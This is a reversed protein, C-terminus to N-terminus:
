GDSFQTWVGSDWHEREIVKPMDLFVLLEIIKKVDDFELPNTSSLVSDHTQSTQQFKNKEVLAFTHMLDSQELPSELGAKQAPKDSRTTNAALNKQFQALPNSGFNSFQISFNGSQSVSKAQPNADKFNASADVLIDSLQEKKTAHSHASRVREIQTLKGFNLLKEKSDNGDSSCTEDLVIYPGDKFYNPDTRRPLGDAFRHLDELLGLCSFFDREYIKDCRWIWKRSM